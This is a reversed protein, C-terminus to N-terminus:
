TERNFEKAGFFNQKVSCRYKFIQLSQADSKYQEMNKKEVKVKVTQAPQNDCDIKEPLKFITVDKDNCVLGNMEYSMIIGTKWLLIVKFVLGKVEM